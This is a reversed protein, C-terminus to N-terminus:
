RWGERCRHRPQRAATRHTETPGGDSALPALKANIVQGAAASGILNGHAGNAAGSLTDGDGVLNYSSEANVLGSVDGPSTTPSGGCFNGAILTNDMIAGPTSFKSGPPPMEVNLGGGTQGPTSTVASATNATITCNSVVLHCLYENVGGGYAASNGSITNGTMTLYGYKALTGYLYIFGASQIGGGSGGSTNGSLTSGILTMDSGGYTQIGGGGVGPASNGSITSDSLTMVGAFNLIAGGGNEGLATTGSNRYM